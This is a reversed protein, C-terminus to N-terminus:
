RSCPTSSATCAYLGHTVSPDCMSKPLQIGTMDTMAVYDREGHPFADLSADSDGVLHFRPSDLGSLELFALVRSGITARPLCCGVKDAFFSVEGAAEGKAVHEIQLTAVPRAGQEVRVVQGFVVLTARKSAEALAPLKPTTGAGAGALLGFLVSAAFFV